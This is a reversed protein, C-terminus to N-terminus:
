KIKINTDCSVGVHKLLDRICELTIVDEHSFTVLNQAGDPYVILLKKIEKHQQLQEKYYSEQIERRYETLLSSKGSYLTVNKGFDDLPNYLFPQPKPEKENSLRQQVNMSMSLM